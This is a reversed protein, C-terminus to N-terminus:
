ERLGAAEFASDRDLDAGRGRIADGEEIPRYECNSM